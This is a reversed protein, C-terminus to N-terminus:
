YIAASADKLVSMSEIDAPDLRELGGAREPVGDIVILAGNDNLTHNGRIRIIAGDYGPEGSTNITVVGPLKGAITNSLNVDPVGQLEAGAVATVAGTLTAKSQTGYGVAVVPNLEIASAQLRLAVVTEAGEQVVVTTDGPTYGLRRARLRHSGPPVGPIAFRGDAGTTGTLPTGVVAVTVAGLPASTTADTVTGTISGQARVLEPAVALAILSLLLVLRNM